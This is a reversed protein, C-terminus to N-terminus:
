LARLGSLVRELLDNREDFSADATLTERVAVQGAILLDGILVRAVGLPVGLHLAVEAVSRQHLCLQTVAALPNTPSYPATRGEVTTEVLAEVALDVTPRTRGATWAYPRALSAAHRGGERRRGETM